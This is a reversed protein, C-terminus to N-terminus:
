GLVHMKNEENFWAEFVTIPLQRGACRLTPVSEGHIWIQNEPRKSQCLNCGPSFTTDILLLSIGKAEKRTGMKEGVKGELEEGKEGIGGQRGKQRKMMGEM